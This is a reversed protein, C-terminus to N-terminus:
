ECITGIIFQERGHLTERRSFTPGSRREHARQQALSSIKQRSLAFLRPGSHTLTRPFDLRQRDGRPILRSVDNCASSRNFVLGNLNSPNPVSPAPVTM